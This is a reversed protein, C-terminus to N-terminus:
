CDESTSLKEAFDMCYVPVAITQLWLLSTVLSFCDTANRLSMSSPSFGWMALDIIKM